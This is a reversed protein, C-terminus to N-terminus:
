IPAFDLGKAIVKMETESLVKKSLDFVTDSSFYGQIRSIVSINEPMEINLDELISLLEEDQLSLEIVDKQSTVLNSSNPVEASNTYLCPPAANMDSSMSKNCTLLQKYIKALDISKKCSMSEDYSVADVYLNSYNNAVIEIKEQDKMNNEVKLKDMEYIVNM